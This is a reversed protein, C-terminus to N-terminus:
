EGMAVGERRPDVGAYLGDDRIVIGHLGSNLARTKVTHGKQALADALDASATGEELETAGNRNSFHGLSIAQQINMQWDIVAIITKAVYNIIRSGGPSGIIMFLDGNEDFIMTPAMSSRPQKGPQPRNAIIRGESDHTKFSFDTLQNNLLFGRVMLENGFASEVSSTMSVANGDADVIAFHTTAPLDPSFGDAHTSSRPNLDGPSQQQFDIDPKILSARATLYQADLLMSTPVDYFQPDAIYRARDAYALRASQTFLHVSEASPAKMSARHNELIKLIQLVTIGGSTPPPMGCIKFSHYGTCVPSATTARYEALDELALLGPNKESTRVSAVIDKAINGAYFLGPNGALTKLTDAFAPNKLLHGIPLPEDDLFFYDRTAPDVSLLAANARISDHLRPSVPFGAEALDIAPAFLDAWPLNGHQQHALQLMSVVGPAGASLGGTSADKWRMPSGDDGTFVSETFALPARERGNYGIIEGRANDWYLMFAGGGIGSSQPEVLGLVMQMAVAADMASGGAKLIDYGAQAAYKNAASVLFEKAYYPKLNAPAQMAVAPITLPLVGIVFTIIRIINYM